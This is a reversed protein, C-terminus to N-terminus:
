RDHMVTWREILAQQLRKARRNWSRSGPASTQSARDIGARTAEDAALIAFALVTGDGATAYGALSSVFILTGTKARVKVAHGKDIRGDADRLPIDKLIPGIEDKRHVRALAMALTGPRIRSQDGLGSHDVFMAGELGLEDTAWRTM